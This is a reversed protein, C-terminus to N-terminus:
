EDEGDLIRADREPTLHIVSNDVAKPPTEGPLVPRPHRATFKPANLGPALNPRRFVLVLILLFNLACLSLIVGQSWNM